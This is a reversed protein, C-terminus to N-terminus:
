ARHVMRVMCPLLTGHLHKDRGRAPVPRGTLDRVLDAARQLLAAKVDLDGREVVYRVHAPEVSEDEPAGDIDTAPQPRRAREDLLVRALQRGPRRPEERAARDAVRGLRIAVGGHVDVAQDLRAAGPLVAEEGTPEVPATEPETLSGHDADDSGGLAVVAAPVVHPFPGAVGSTGVTM